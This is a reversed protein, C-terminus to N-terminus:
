VDDDGEEDGDYAPNTVPCKPNISDIFEAYEAIFADFTIEHETIVEEIVERDGIGANEIEGDGIAYTDVSLVEIEKEDSREYGIDFFADGDYLDDSCGVIGAGVHPKDDGVDILHFIISRKDLDLWSWLFDKMDATNNIIVNM